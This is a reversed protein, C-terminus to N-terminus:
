WARPGQTDCTQSSPPVLHFSAPSRSRQKLPLRRGILDGTKPIIHTLFLRRNMESNQTENAVAAPTVKVLVSTAPACPLRGDCRGQPKVPQEHKAPGSNFRNRRKMGLDIGSDGNGTGWRSVCRSDAQFCWGGLAIRGVMETSDEEWIDRIGDGGRMVMIAWSSDKDNTM